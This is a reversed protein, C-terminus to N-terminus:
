MDDVSWEYSATDKRKRDNIRQFWKNEFGNARDVGDWRYGPKIGFRNPPPPPGRYEPKRPGKSKKQLLSSTMFAAAPDNWMERAKLEENLERDDAHRSFPLAKNKELQSRHKEREERQVLGKGWEMKKADKEEKERKKRAAEARALKMDIKRGSADRYVTEQAAELAEQAEEDQKVHSKTQKRLEEARILGGKFPRQEEVVTPQEDEPPPPSEEQKVGEQVRIWGSRDDTKRKKFSRDSAVAAEAVDMDDERLRRSAEDGFGADEDVFMSPGATANNTAKRKKKKPATRAIIAEAKPGSMYKEALYAHM